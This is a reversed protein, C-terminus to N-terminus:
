KIYYKERERNKLKSKNRYYKKIKKFKNLTDFEILGRSRYLKIIELKMDIDNSAVITAITNRGHSIENRFDKLITFFHIWVYKDIDENLVKWKLDIDKYIDTNSKNLEKSIKPWKELLRIPDIYNSGQDKFWNEVILQVQKDSVKEVIIKFRKDKKLRKNDIDGNKFDNIMTNINERLACNDNKIIKNLANKSIKEDPQCDSSSQLYREEFYKEEQDFKTVTDLLVEKLKNRMERVKFENKLYVSIIEKAYILNSSKKFLDKYSSKFEGKLKNRVLLLCKDSAVMEKEFKRNPHNKFINLINDLEVNSNINIIKLLEIINGFTLNHIDSLCKSELKCNDNKIFGKYWDCKYLKDKLVVESIALKISREIEHLYKLIELSECVLEDYKNKWESYSSSNYGDLNGNKKYRRFYHKSDRVFFNYPNISLYGELNIEREEDEESFNVKKRKLSEIHQSIVEQM